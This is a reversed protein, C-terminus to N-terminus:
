EVQKRNQQLEKIKVYKIFTAHASIACVVFGYYGDLFGLRIVYSKVFKWFPNILLTLFNAKKGKEFSERAMITTFKKVVDLHHDISPFSYHLLDGKLFTQTCGEQLKYMDHPNIGTWQGKRKDFLRLKRDPYWDTHKIWQGCYNTLRNFCYGESQWNEKVRVISAKLEDSLAEDADLSLVHPYGAFELAKNKQQIYGLFPQEIFTVNYALCIEKTRDTSVSDLVVIEDAIDLVSRICREINSEENFTIIVVSIPTKL